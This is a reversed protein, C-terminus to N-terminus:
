PSSHSPKGNQYIGLEIFTEKPMPLQANPLQQQRDSLSLMADHLPTRKGLYGIALSWYAMTM